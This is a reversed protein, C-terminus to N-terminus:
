KTAPMQVEKASLAEEPVKIESIENHQNITTKM